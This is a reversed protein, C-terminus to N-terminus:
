SGHRLPLWKRRMFRRGSGNKAVPPAAAMGQRVGSGARRDCPLCGSGRGGGRRRLGFLVATGPNSGQASRHSGAPGDPQGLRADGRGVADIWALEEHLPVRMAPGTRKRAKSQRAYDIPILRMVQATFTYLLRRIQLLRPYAENVLGPAQPTHGPRERRPCSAAITRLEDDTPSAIGSLAARDSEKWRHLLQTTEPPVPKEPPM